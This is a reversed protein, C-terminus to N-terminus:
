LSSTYLGNENEYRKLHYQKRKMLTMLGVDKTYFRVSPRLEICRRLLNLNERTLDERVTVYYYETENLYQRNKYFLERSRYSMFRVIIPRPTSSQPNYKGVRHSRSIDIEYVPIDLCEAIHLIME